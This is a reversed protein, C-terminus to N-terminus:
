IPPALCVQIDATESNKVVPHRVAIEKAAVSGRMSEIVTYHVDQFAAFQGSWFGPKPGIAIVEALVVVPAERINKRIRQVDMQAECETFSVILVALIIIVKMM